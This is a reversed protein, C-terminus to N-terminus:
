DGYNTTQRQLGYSIGNENLGGNHRECQLRNIERSVADLESREMDKLADIVADLLEKSLYGTM